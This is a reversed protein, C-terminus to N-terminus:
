SQTPLQYLIRQTTEPTTRSSAGGTKHSHTVLVNNKTVSLGATEEKTPRVKKKGKGGCIVAL